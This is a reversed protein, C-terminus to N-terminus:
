FGLGRALAGIDIILASKYQESYLAFSEKGKDIRLRIGSGKLSIILRYNDYRFRKKDSDWWDAIEVHFQVMVQSITAVTINYNSMEKILLLDIVNVDSYERAVGRKNHAVFKHLLGRQASYFQAKRSEMGVLGSANKLTRKKKAM